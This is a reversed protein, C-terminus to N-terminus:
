WSSSTPGSQTGLGSPFLLSVARMEPVEPDKTVNVGWGWQSTRRPRMSFTASATSAPLSPGSPSRHSGPPRPALAPLEVALGTVPWVRRSQPARAARLQTQARQGMGHAGETLAGATYRTVQPEPLGPLGPIVGAAWVGLCAPCPLSASSRPRGSAWRVQGDTSAPRM